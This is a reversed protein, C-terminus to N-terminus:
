ESSQEIAKVIKLFTNGDGGSVMYGNVIFTPTSNIGLTRAEDLDAKVIAVYENDRYSNLCEEYPFDLNADNFFQAIDEKFSQEEIKDQSSFILDHAVWFKESGFRNNICTTYYAADDAWKHFSLPFHKYYFTIKESYMEKLKSVIKHTAIKCAPCQFDSYEIVKISEPNNSGYSPTNSLNVNNMITKNRSPGSFNYLQPNFVIHNGDNSILFSLQQTEDLKKFLISGEQLGKIPSAKLPTISILADNPITDGFHERFKKLVEEKTTNSQNTNIDRVYDCGILLFVLLLGFKFVNRM